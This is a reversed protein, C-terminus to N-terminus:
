KFNNWLESISNENNKNIETNRSRIAIEESESIKEKATDEDTM